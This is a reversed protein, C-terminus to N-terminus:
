VEEEARIRMEMENFHQHEPERAILDLEQVREQLGDETQTQRDKMEQAPLLYGRLGSFCTTAFMCM